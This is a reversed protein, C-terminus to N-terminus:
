MKAVETAVFINEIETGYIVSAEADMFMSTRPEKIDNLLKYVENFVKEKSGHIYLTTISIGKILM